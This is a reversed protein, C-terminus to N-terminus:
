IFHKSFTVGHSALASMAPLSYDAGALLKEVRQDVIIFIINYPPKGSSDSGGAASQSTQALAYEPRVRLLGLGTLFQACRTLFKGRTKGTSPGEANPLPEPEMEM